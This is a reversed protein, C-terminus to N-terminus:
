ENTIAYKNVLGNGFAQVQHLAHFREMATLRTNASVIDVAHAYAMEDGIERCEVLNNVSRAYVPVFAYKRLAGLAECPAIRAETALVTDPARWLRTAKGLLRKPAQPPKARRVKATHLAETVCARALDRGKPLAPRPVSVREAPASVRVKRLKWGYGGLFLLRRRIIPDEDEVLPADRELEAELSRARSAKSVTPNHEDIM